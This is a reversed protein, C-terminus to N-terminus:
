ALFNPIKSFLSRIPTRLEHTCGVHKSNVNMTCLLNLLSCTQNSGNMKVLQTQFGYIHVMSTVIEIILLRVKFIEKCKSFNIRASSSWIKPKTGKM